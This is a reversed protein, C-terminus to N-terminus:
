STATSSKGPTPKQGNRQTRRNTQGASTQSAAQQSNSTTRQSTTQSDKAPPPSLGRDPQVAPAPRGLEKEKELLEIQKTVLTRVDALQPCVTRLWANRDTDEPIPGVPQGANPPMAPYTPPSTPESNRNISFRVRTPDYENVCAAVLQHIVSLDLELYDENLRVLSLAAIDSISKSATDGGGDTSTSGGPSPGAPNHSGSGSSGSGSSGSGSSGSGSSGSGSSNGGSSGPGSSGSGASGSGGPGSAGSNPPSGLGVQTAGSSHSDSLNSAEPGLPSEPLNAVKHLYPTQSIRRSM